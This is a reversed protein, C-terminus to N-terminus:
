AMQLTIGLTTTL